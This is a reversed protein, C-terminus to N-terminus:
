LCHDYLRTYTTGILIYLGSTVGNCNTITAPIACTTTNLNVLTAGSALLCYGSTSNYSYISGTTFKSKGAFLGITTLLLAAIVFFLKVKKM